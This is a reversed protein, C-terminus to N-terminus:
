TYERSTSSVYANKPYLIPPLAVQILKSSMKADMSKKHNMKGNHGTDDDKLDSENGRDGRRTELWSEHDGESTTM